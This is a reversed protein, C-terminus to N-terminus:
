DGRHWGSRIVFGEALGAPPAWTENVDDVRAGPPGSRAVLLLRLLADERGEAVVRVAGDSENAVWGRLGLAQAHDVIFMRFGVGQVRGELRLELRQDPM